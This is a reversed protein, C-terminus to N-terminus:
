IKKANLNVGLMFIRKHWPVNTEIPKWFHCHTTGPILTGRAKSAEENVCWWSIAAQCYYCDYCSKREANPIGNYGYAKIM